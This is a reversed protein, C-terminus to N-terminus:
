NLKARPTAALPLPAVPVGDDILGKVEQATAQGFIGRAESRGEHIDRAERAFRDGVDECNATVFERVKTLMEALHQGEPASAPAPLVAAVDAAPLTQSRQAKTGAVAPAMIQKTVERSACYPCVVLGRASQDDYDSSSGFWAEFMHAHDCVLAYRIM